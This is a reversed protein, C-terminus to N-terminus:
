EGDKGVCLEHIERFDMQEFYVNGAIEYRILYPLKQAEDRVRLLYNGESDTEGFVVRTIACDNSCDGTVNECIKISKSDIQKELVFEEFSTNDKAIIAYNRELLNKKHPNFITIIRKREEYGRTHLHHSYLPVAKISNIGALVGQLTLLGENVGRQTKPILYVEKIPLKRELTNLDIETENEEYGYIVSKLMFKERSENMVLFLGNGRSLTSLKVGDGYFSVNSELISNGTTTDILHIVMSLQMKIVDAM